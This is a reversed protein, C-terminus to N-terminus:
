EDAKGTKKLKILKNRELIIYNARQNEGEKLLSEVLMYFVQDTDISDDDLKKIYNEAKTYQKNIILLKAVSLRESKLRIRNPSSYTLFFFLLVFALPAAMKYFVPRRRFIGVIGLGALLSVLPSVPVRYRYLMDFFLLSGCYAAVSLALFLIGKNKKFLFVATMAVGLLLNFPIIFIAMFDIVEKHAYFSLSNPIEYSSMFKLLQVPLNVFISHFLPTSLTARSTRDAHFITFINEFAGPIIAFSQFRIFNYISFPAILILMGSFYAFIYQKKIKGRIDRFFLMLLPAFVVPVFNERGLVCLAAAFGALLYYFVTRKFFANVMAYAFLIYCFALPGARLFSLSILAAAGYFCYLLAGTQSSERDFRLRRSLKYILVPTLACLAAQLLRMIILNGQSLVVLIYLFLTYLPSYLYGAAPMKGNYMDAAASIMTLQDMGKAPYPLLGYQRASFLLYASIFFSFFYITISFHRNFFFKM